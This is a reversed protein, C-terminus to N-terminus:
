VAYQINAQKHCEGVASMHYLQPKGPVGTVATVHGGRWPGINRYELGELHSTETAAALVLSPVVVFQVLLALPLFIGCFM